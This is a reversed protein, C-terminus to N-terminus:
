HFVSAKFNHESARFIREIRKPNNLIQQLFLAQQQASEEKLINEVEKGFDSRYKM